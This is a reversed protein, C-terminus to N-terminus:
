TPGLNCHLSVFKKVVIGDHVAANEAAFVV